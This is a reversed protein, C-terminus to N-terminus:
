PDVFIAYADEASASSDVKMITENVGTLTLGNSRVEITDSATVGTMSGSAASTAIATVWSGGNLRYEIPGGSNVHGITCNYTGTTPATWVNSVDLDVLAGFNFDGALETSASDFRWDLTYIAEYVVATHTHRTKIRVEMEDPIVGDMYRLITSRYAYDAATAQWGTTYLLTPTGGVVKYVEVAYETTNAAPFTPDITEADTHNQSVEDYIRFDRRNWEVEVGKTDENAGHQTDLSVTGAPYQTSNLDMFTPPYPRRERTALTLAIQTLGGDSESVVNGHIDYPLFRLHVNNTLAFATDTLVGGTNLFYVAAAAAHSDQASDLLGRYCGTLQLGGTIATVGTCAIFENGILFLNILGNGVDFATAELIETINMTTLVDITADDNDIGTDLEGVHMFGNSNGADYFDGSPTGASNRQRIRFGMEERGQSVGACWIRGESPYLDRRSIAYPAEFAVQEDSPFPILNKDPATWNTADPDSYSAARWSFIDQVADVLIDPNEKNGIDIRTIRMPLDDLVVGKITYDVLIVEGEYADWFDRNVKMRIKSLPYSSSRLERWAIKNALADDKVGEFTWVVPVVRNQIRMNAGDQAPAYSTGYANARRKYSIRLSNVTQDWAARSFDIVELINDNDAKRLGPLSYGDRALVVRWKGTQPDIRFRCDCQKEIMKILKTIKQQTNLTFSVGNGETYLTDSIDKFETIDVDSAPYGYGVEASNLLEYMMEMPNCDYTNVTPHDCGLNTPIRTMEFAWPKVSKTEGVYGGKFVGYSLGRYAPALSQHTALYSDIAQTKSGTYFGFTGIADKHSIQIDGDTTQNGSWVLEDGIWIKRLAAPGVCIGMQFGVYYHWGVIVKESSFMGTKIKETVPYTRLDGYWVVNPGSIKDTGWCLPIMRGETATPFNFQDLTAAKADELEPKPRLAESIAFTVVWMIFVFWFGM